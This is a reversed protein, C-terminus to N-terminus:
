RERLPYKAEIPYQVKEGWAKLMGMVSRFEHNLDNRDYNLDVRNPIPMGACRDRLDITEPIIKYDKPWCHNGHQLMEDKDLFCLLSGDSSPPCIDLGGGDTTVLFGQKVMEDLSMRRVDVCKGGIKHCPSIDQFKIFDEKKLIGEIYLDMLSDFSIETLPQRNIQLDKLKRGLHSELEEKTIKKNKEKELTERWPAEPNDLCCLPYPNYEGEKLPGSPRRAWRRQEAEFQPKFHKWAYEDFLGYTHGLEHALIGDVGKEKFTKQPIGLHVIKRDFYAFNREIISTTFIVVDYDADRKINLKNFFGDGDLEKIKNSIEATSYRNGGGPSPSNMLRLAIMDESTSYRETLYTLKASNEVGSNVISLRLFTNIQKELKDEPLDPKNLKLFIYNFKAVIFPKSEIEEIVEGEEIIEAKCSIKSGREFPYVFQNWMRVSLTMGESREDGLSRKGKENFLKSKCVYVSSKKDSDKKVCNDLSRRFYSISFSFMYEDIDKGDELEIEVECFVPDYKTIMGVAETDQSRDSYEELGDALYNEPFAHEKMYKKPIMLKANKIIKTEPVATPTATPGCYEDYLKPLDVGVGSDDAGLVFCSSLVLLVGVILIFSIVARKQM